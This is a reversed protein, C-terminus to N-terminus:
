YLMTVFPNFLYTQREVVQQSLVSIWLNLFCHEFIGNLCIRLHEMFLGDLYRRTFTFM